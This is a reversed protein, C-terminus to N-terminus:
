PGVAAHRSDGGPSAFAAGQAAWFLAPLAAGLVASDRPDRM